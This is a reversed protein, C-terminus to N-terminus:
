ACGLIGHQTNMERQKLLGILYAALIRYKNPAFYLWRLLKRLNQGCASLLVNVADGLKGKLYCRRMKGDSKLHGIIPEVSNRRSLWRKEKEPLGRKQGAIYVAVNKVGSGRYGRDVFCAEPTRGTLTEVQQLQDALTHGVYPNGTVAHVSM